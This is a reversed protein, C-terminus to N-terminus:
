SPEILVIRIKGEMEPLYTTSLYIHAEDFCKMLIRDRIYGIWAPDLDAGATIHVLATSIGKFYSKPFLPKQSLQKLSAELRNKGSAEGISVIGYSVLGYFGRKVIHHLDILETYIFGPAIFMNTFVQVVKRAIEASIDMPLAIASDCSNQIEKATEITARAVVITLCENQEKTKNVIKYAFKRSVEDELDAVILVLNAGIVDKDRLEARGNRRVCELKWGMRDNTADSIEKLVQAGFHRIGIVKILGYTNILDLTQDSM